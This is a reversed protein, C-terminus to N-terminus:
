KLCFVAYSIKVHSSNLRTSKRDSRFTYKAYDTGPLIGQQDLYGLSLTYAMEEKGGSMKLYHNHHLADKFYFDSWDRNPYLAPNDGRRFNDIYTESYAPQQGSNLRAENYLELFDVSGLLSPYRTVQQNTIYANYEIPLNGSRGKKTTILIVGNAAKNGYISAS